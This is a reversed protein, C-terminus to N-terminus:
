LRWVARTPRNNLVIHVDELTGEALPGVADGTLNFHFSLTRGRYSFSETLFHNVPPERHFPSYAIGVTHAPRNM